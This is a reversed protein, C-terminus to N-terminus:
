MNLCTELSCCSSLPKDDLNYTTECKPCVFITAECGNKLCRGNTTYNNLALNLGDYIMTREGSCVECDRFSHLEGYFNCTYCYQEDKCYTKNDCSICSLTEDDHRQAMQRMAQRYPPYSILQKHYRGGLNYELFESPMVDDDGSCLVKILVSTVFYMIDYKLDYYDGEQFKYACHVVGNRYQQFDNIVDYDAENMSPILKENKSLKKLKEFGKTWLENRKYLDFIEGGTKKVDDGEVIGQLGKRKIVLAKLALEISTQLSMISLILVDDSIEDKHGEDRTTIRDIFDKFFVIANNVIQDHIEQEETTM